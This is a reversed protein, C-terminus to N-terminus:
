EETNTNQIGQAQERRDNCASEITMLVDEARKRAKLTREPVESSSFEFTENFRQLQYSAVGLASYGWRNKMFPDAGAILLGQVIPYNGMIAAIDLATYGEFLDYSSSRLSLQEQSPKFYDLLYGLILKLDKHNQTQHPAM